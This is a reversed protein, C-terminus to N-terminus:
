NERLRAAEIQAAAAKGDLQGVLIGVMADEFADSVQPSALADVGAVGGLRAEDQLYRLSLHHRITKETLAGRRIVFRGSKAFESQYKQSVFLNMLEAAQDKNKEARPMAFGNKNLYLSYPVQENVAPFLFYDLKFGKPMDRLMIPMWYGVPQMAVKGQWFLVQVEDRSLGAAGRIIYGRDCLEKLRDLAQVVERSRWSTKGSLLTLCKDRGLSTVLLATGVHAAPWRDKAGIGIPVIGANKIKELVNLFQPWNKPPQLGLREFIAKNYHMLSVPGGEFPVGYTKGNWTVADYYAKPFLDYWGYRKYYPTLDAILGQDVMYKLDTPFDVFFWSPPAGGVIGTRVIDELRESPVPNSSVKVGPNMKEFESIISDLIDKSEGGTFESMISLTVKASRASSSRMTEGQRAPSGGRARILLVAALAAGLLAALIFWRKGRTKEM